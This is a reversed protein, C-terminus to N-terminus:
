RWDLAGSLFKGCPDRPPYQVVGCDACHQLAFQGRWAAIALGLAARSRQAPPLTPVTSRKQPNKKQPPMLPETM